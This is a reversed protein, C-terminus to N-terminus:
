IESGQYFWLHRDLVVASGLVREWDENDYRASKWHGSSPREDTRTVVFTDLRVMGLGPLQLPLTRQAFAVVQNVYAQSWKDYSANFLYRYAWSYTCVEPNGDMARLIFRNLLANARDSAQCNAPAVQKRPGAAVVDITPVKHLHEYILSRTEATVDPIVMLGERLTGDPDISLPVGIATAALGPVKGDAAAALLAAVCADNHDHTPLPPLGVVGLAELISKRGIRGQETSKNPLARRGSLITWIHGPYVESVGGLFGDPSIEVGARRLAAFIDLSSRIFGAFPRTLPPLSDGTKGVAASQRECARLDQGKAALGQPGDFMSTRAAKLESSLVSVDLDGPVLDWQWLWFTATLRNGEGSSLGCVDIDRCANSYRDTLDAGIYEPVGIKLTSKV